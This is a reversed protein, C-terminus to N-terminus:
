FLRREDLLKVEMKVREVTKAREEGINRLLVAREAEAMAEADVRRIMALLMVKLRGETFLYSGSLGGRIDADGRNYNLAKIVSKKRTEFDDRFYLLFRALTQQQVRVVEPDGYYVSWAFAPGDRDEIAQRAARCTGEAREIFEAGLIQRLLHFLAPLVERPIRDVPTRARRDRERPELRDEFSEVVLRRFEDLRMQNLTQGTSLRDYEAFLRHCFEEFEPNGGRFYDAVAEVDARTLLHDGELHFKEMVADFFLRFLADVTARYFPAEPM